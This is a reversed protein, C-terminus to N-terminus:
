SNPPFSFPGSEELTICGISGVFYTNIHYHCKYLDLHM